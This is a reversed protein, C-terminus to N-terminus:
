IIVDIIIFIWVLIKLILIDVVVLKKDSLLHRARECDDCQKHHEGHEHCGPTLLLGAQAPLPGM